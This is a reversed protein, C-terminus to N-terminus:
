FIPTFGGRRPRPRKGYVSPHANERTNKRKVGLGSISCCVFFCSNRANRGSCRPRPKVPTILDNSGLWKNKARELNGSNGTMTSKPTNHTSHGTCEGNAPVCGRVNETNGSSELNPLPSLAASSRSNRAKPRDSSPRHSASCQVQHRM